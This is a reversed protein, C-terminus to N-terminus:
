EILMEDCFVEASEFEATLKEQFVTLLEESGFVSVLYDEGVTTIVLQDPFGCIWQANEISTQLAEAFAERDTGDQLRFAAGTFTNANMMHMLVATEEIQEAEEEPVYLVTQLAAADSPAFEAPADTVMHEADGGAAPFREEEGYADWVQNLIDLASAIEENGSAQPEKASCAGVFLLAAALIGIWRKKM